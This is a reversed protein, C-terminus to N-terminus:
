VRAGNERAFLKRTLRSTRPHFRRTQAPFDRGNPLKSNGAQFSFRRVIALRGRPSLPPFISRAPSRLLQMPRATARLGACARKSQTSHPGASQPSERRMQALGLFPGQCTSLDQDIKLRTQRSLGSSCNKMFSRTISRFTLIIRISGKGAGTPYSMTALM